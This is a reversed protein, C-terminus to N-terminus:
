YKEVEKVVGVGGMKTWIKRRHIKILLLSGFVSSKLIEDSIACLL